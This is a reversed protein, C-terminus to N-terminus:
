KGKELIQYSVSTIFNSVLPIFKYHIIFIVILLPIIILYSIFSYLFFMIVLIAVTTVSYFLMDLLEPQLKKLLSLIFTTYYVVSIYSFSITIISLFFIDIKIFFSLMGFLLIGTIISMILFKLFLYKVFFKIDTPFNVSLQFTLGKNFSDFLQFFIMLSIFPIFNNSIEGYQKSYFFVYCFIFISTLLFVLWMERFIAKLDYTLIKFSNIM